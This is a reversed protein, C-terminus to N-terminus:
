RWREKRLDCWNEFLCDTEYEDRAIRRCAMAFLLSDPPASKIIRRDVFLQNCLIMYKRETKDIEKEVARLKPAQAERKLIEKRSPRIEEGGLKRVATKFDCEDMLEVFSFIDGHAGCGFCYFTNQGSYLKLSATKDTDRHGPFCCHCLGYKNASVGYMAAVDFISYKARIDDLNM